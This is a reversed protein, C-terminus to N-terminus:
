YKSPFTKLLRQYSITQYAGFIKFNKIKSEMVNKISDQSLREDTNAGWFITIYKFARKLNFEKSM